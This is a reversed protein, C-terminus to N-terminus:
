LKLAIAFDEVEVGPTQIKGKEKAEEIKEMVKERKRKVGKVNEEIKQLGEKPYCTFDGTIEVDEIKEEKVEQATRILGGKAKHLGWIIEVGGKIKVGEFRKMTKKYIMEPSTLYKEVEKMKQYIEPTLKAPTLKGLLNEFKEILVKVIEERDPIEGLEKKMTTLYEKMSKYIKDRFKEDPVKLIKVMTDYNFDLLVGGVFVICEGIDGVGEGSIKRGEATVIDNIPKFQAKIGFEKYMECVPQSFTEFLKSVDRTFLPNDKKLIVQYFIQNQDLYTAGGGVERRMYPLGLKKCMELDIEKEADQFYGISIQPSAPSCICLGEIGLRALAHFVTMSDFGELYGLNFLYM